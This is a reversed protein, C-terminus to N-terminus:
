STPGKKILRFFLYGNCHSGTIAKAVASLSAFVAGDCEFGHELIRVQLSRGKYRRTLITGPAPLRSDDARQGSTQPTQLAPVVTLTKRPPSLRLDADNALEAARRRARESLDGEALSQLRWAIRKSLWAKNGTRSPEGFLEAYRRRLAAPALYRLGALQQELTPQM